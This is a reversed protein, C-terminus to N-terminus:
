GEWVTLENLNEYVYFYQFDKLMHVNRVWIIMRPLFTSYDNKMRKEEWVTVIDGRPKWSLLSPLAQM